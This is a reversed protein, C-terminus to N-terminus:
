GSILSFPLATITIDNFFARGRRMSSLVWRLQGLTTNKNKIDWSAVVLKKFERALSTSKVIGWKRGKKWRIM